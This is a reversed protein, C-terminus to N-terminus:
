QAELLSLYCNILHWTLRSCILSVQHSLLWLRVNPESPFIDLRINSFIGRLRRFESTSLRLLSKMDVAQEVTIKQIFSFDAAEAAKKLVDKKKLSELCYYSWHMTLNKAM